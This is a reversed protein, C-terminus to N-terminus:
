SNSSSVINELHVTLTWSGQLVSDLPSCHDMKLGGWVIRLLYSFAGVM